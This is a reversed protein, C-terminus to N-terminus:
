SHNANCEEVSVCVPTGIMFPVLIVIHYWIRSHLTVGGYVYRFHLAFTPRHPWTTRYGARNNRYTYMQVVCGLGLSWAHALRDIVRAICNEGIRQLFVIARFSGTWSHEDFMFGLNLPPLAIATLSRIQQSVITVFYQSMSIISWLHITSLSAKCVDLRRVPVLVAHM